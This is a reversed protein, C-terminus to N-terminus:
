CRHISRDISRDLSCRLPIILDSLLMTDYGYVYLCLCSCVCSCILRQKTHLMIQELARADADAQRNNHADVVSAHFGDLLGAKAALCGCCRTVGFGFGFRLAFSDVVVVNPM